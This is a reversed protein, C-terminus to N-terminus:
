YSPLSVQEWRPVKVGKGILAGLGAGVLGFAVAGGAAFYFQETENVELEEGLNHGVIAGPIAALVGGIMAYRGARSKMGNQIELQAISEYPIVREASDPEASLTMAEPPLARITGVVREKALLTVRARDGPAPAAGALAPLFLCLLVYRTM